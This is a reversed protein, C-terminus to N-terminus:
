TNAFASVYNPLTSKVYKLVNKTAFGKLEIHTSETFPLLEDREFCKATAELIDNKEQM